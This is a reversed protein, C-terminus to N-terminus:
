TQRDPEADAAPGGGSGPDSTTVEASREPASAARLSSDDGEYGYGYRYLDTDRSTDGNFVTGLVNAEVSQLRDVARTVQRRDTTEASAVLIVGDVTGSLVVADTIPLVPASDIIVLDAMDALKRLVEGTSPGALLESPDPPLPGSPVVALNLSEDVLRAADVVPVDDLILSTFGITNDFGFAQHLRPKRLDCDVLITRQGARASVIALNAATTTKGDGPRPSTVQILKLTHDVALFRVATRLDRYAEAPPSHRDHLTVLQSSGPTSEPMKPIVALTAHGSASELDSADRIGTDLYDALFAGGLGILLGVVTALLMTRAPTPEYPASPVGAEDVIASGGTTALEISLIVRELDREFEDRRDPNIEGEDIAALQDELAARRIDFEELSAARQADIFAQAYANAAVAANTPNTSTATFTFIDSEETSSVDLEPESGVVARTAADVTAGNALALQNEIFRPSAVDSAGGVIFANPAERVIVDAAARYRPTTLVSSTGAILLALITAIVIVWRRQWAVSAYDRLTLETSHYETM